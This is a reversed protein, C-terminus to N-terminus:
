QSKAVCFTVLIEKSSNCTLSLTIIHILLESISLKRLPLPPSFVILTSCNCNYVCLAAPHAEATWWQIQAELDFRLAHLPDDLVGVSVHDFRVEEPGAAGRIGIAHCQPYDQSSACLLLYPLAHDLIQLPTTKIRRRPKQKKGDYHINTRSINVVPTTNRM